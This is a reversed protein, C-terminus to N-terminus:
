ARTADTNGDTTFLARLWTEMKEVQLNPVYVPPPPLPTVLARQHLKCMRLTYKILILLVFSCCWFVLPVASSIRARLFLVCMSGCLIYGWTCVTQLVKHTRFKLQWPLFNLAVLLKVFIFTVVMCVNVQDRDSIFNELDESCIVLKSLMSLLQMIGVLIWHMCYNTDATTHSDTTNPNTNLFVTQFILLYLLLVYNKM